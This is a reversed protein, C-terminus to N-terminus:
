GEKSIPPLEGEQSNHRFGSLFPEMYLAALAEAPIPEQRSRREILVERNAGSLIDWECRFRKSLPCPALYCFRHWWSM